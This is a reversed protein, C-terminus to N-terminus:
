PVARIGGVNKNFAHRVHYYNLRAGCCSCFEPMDYFPSCIIDNECEECYTGGNDVLVMSEREEREEQMWPPYGTRMMSSIIYDDRIQYM